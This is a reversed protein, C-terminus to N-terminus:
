NFDFLNIVVFIIIGGGPRHLSSGSQAMFFTGDQQHNIFQNGKTAPSSIETSRHVTCYYSTSTTTKYYHYTGTLSSSLSRLSPQNVRFPPPHRHVRTFVFSSHHRSTTHTHAQTVTVCSSRPPDNLLKLNEILYAQRYSWVNLVSKHVDRSLFRRRSRTELLIM